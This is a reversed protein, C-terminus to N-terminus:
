AGTAAAEEPSLIAAGPLDHRILIKVHEIAGPRGPRLAAFVEATGGLGAYGTVMLAPDFRGTKLHDFARHFAHYQTDGFGPGGVFEVSTNRLIGTVPRFSEERMAAGIVVIKTFSPATAMLSGILGPAGSAEIIHLRQGSPARERWVQLPDDVLPDVAAHAGYALAIERRRASPDSVVIPSAGRASLEIVAGLGVPGSGTVLTGDNETIGSRIVGNVGTALPETVAALVPSVGDPIKLHGYAGVVLREALGGPYDDAYGVTHVQGSPDTVGPLVVLADGAAYEEEAGKGAEVVRATFEHGMVLGRAPDFVEGLAGTEYHAALFEDTHQWASLDSGCVGTAIPEVLLQGAEPRPEPLEEVTIKGSRM